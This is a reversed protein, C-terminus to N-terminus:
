RSLSRCGPVNSTSRAAEQDGGRGCQRRTAGEETVRVAPVTMEPPPLFPDPPVQFRPRSKGPGPATGPEGLAKLSSV